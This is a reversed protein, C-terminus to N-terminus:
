VAPGLECWCKRDKLEVERGNMCSSHERFFVHYLNNEKIKMLASEAAGSPGRLHQPPNIQLVNYM